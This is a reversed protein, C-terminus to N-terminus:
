PAPTAAPTAAGDETPKVEVNYGHKSLLNKMKENKV